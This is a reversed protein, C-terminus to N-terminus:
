EASRKEPRNLELALAAVNLYSLFKTKVENTCKATHKSPANQITSRCIIICMSKFRNKIILIWKIFDFIACAFRRLRDQTQISALSELAHAHCFHIEREDMLVARGCVSFLLNIVILWIRMSDMEVFVWERLVRRVDITSHQPKALRSAHLHMRTDIRYCFARRRRQQRHACHVTRM